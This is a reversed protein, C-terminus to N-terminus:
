IDLLFSLLFSFLSELCTIVSIAPKSLICFICGLIVSSSGYPLEKPAQWFCGSKLDEKVKEM